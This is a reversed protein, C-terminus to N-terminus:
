SEKLLEKPNIIGRGYKKLDSSPTCAKILHEKMDNNNNLPTGGAVKRHKALVLACVGAIFPTAMSTGSLIGYSNPPYCSYIRGGPAMIDIREGVSSFNSRSMNADISGVSIVEPYKAPYNITDSRSEGENGAACVIIKGADFAKKIARHMPESGMPAGLSMSIIDVNQELCWDIGNVIWSFDGNGQDGLVKGIYLRCRPAVGIVGMGNDIGAIIGSCHTGHGVVDDIGRPSSTFDKYSEIQDKLDQHKTDVGTDLVAVKICDGKTEKWWDPVGLTRLGWDIVESLASVVFEATIPPLQIDPLKDNIGEHVM